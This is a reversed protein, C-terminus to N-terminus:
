TLFLLKNVVEITIAAIRNNLNDYEELNVDSSM